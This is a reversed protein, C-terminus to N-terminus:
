LIAFNVSDCYVFDNNYWILLERGIGTRPMCRPFTLCTQKNVHIVEQDRWTQVTISRSRGIPWLQLSSDRFFSLWFYQLWHGAPSNSVVTGPAKRSGAGANTRNCDSPIFQFDLYSEGLAHLCWIPQNAANWAIVCIVFIGIAFVSALPTFIAAGEGWYLVVIM